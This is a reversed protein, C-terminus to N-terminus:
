PDGRRLAPTAIIIVVVYRQTCRGDNDLQCVVVNLKLREDISAGAPIAERDVVRLLFSYKVHFRSALQLFCPM